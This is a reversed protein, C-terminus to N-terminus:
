RVWCQDFPLQQRTVKGFKTVLLEYQAKLWTTQGAAGCKDFSALHKWVNAPAIIAIKRKPSKIGKKELLQRVAEFNMGKLFAGSIDWSEGDM